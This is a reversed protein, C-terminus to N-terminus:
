EALLGFFAGGLYFVPASGSVVEHKGGFPIYLTSSRARPAFPFFLSFYLLAIQASAPAGRERENYVVKGRVWRYRLSRDKLVQCFDPLALPM